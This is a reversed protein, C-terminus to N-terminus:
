EREALQRVEAIIGGLATCARSNDDGLLALANETRSKYNEPHALFGEVLHTANKENLCYESNIAFLVQNLCSISRVIHAAVYYLDGNKLSKEALTHSFEAEFLFNRIVASRLASPYAEAEAKLTSVRQSSEWLLKGVALEGMYMANIYAHPHGPQYNAYVTGTRCERIVAEVRDIDRFIFDVLLGDVMLWAGGNVWAGWEGPSAILDKRHGDDLEQAVDNLAMIDLGPAGAYYIGIDIDSDPRYSGRARSGGLMVAQVGRVQKLPALIKKIINKVCPM